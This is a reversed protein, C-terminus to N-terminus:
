LDATEHQLLRTLRDTELLVDIREPLSALSMRSGGGRALLTLGQQNTLAVVRATSDVTDPIAVLRPLLGDVAYDRLADVDTSVQVAPAHQQITTALTEIEGM